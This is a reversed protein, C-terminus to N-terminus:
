TVIILKDLTAVLQRTPELLPLVDESVFDFFDNYDGTIRNQLLRSYLRGEEKTMLGKSIFNLGLQGVVGNHTHARMGKSILLASAMYFCAYYMRQIALNWHETAIMDEAEKLTAYAKEKRYAVVAQMDESGFSM